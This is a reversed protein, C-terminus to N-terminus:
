IMFELCGSKDQLKGRPLGRNSKQKVFKSEDIQVLLNECRLRVVNSVLYNSYADRFYVFWQVVTKVNVNTKKSTSKVSSELFM